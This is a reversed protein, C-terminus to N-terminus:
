FGLLYKIINVVGILTILVSCVGFIHLLILQYKHVIKWWNTKHNYYNRTLIKRAEMKDGKKHQTQFRKLSTVLPLFDGGIFHINNISKFGM